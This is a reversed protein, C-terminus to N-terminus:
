RYQQQERQTCQTANREKVRNEDTRAAPTPATRVAMRSTRREGCETTPSNTACRLPLAAAVVGRLWSCALLPLWSCCWAWASLLTAVLLSASGSSTATTTGVPRTSSASQSWLLLAAACAPQVLEQMVLVRPLSLPLSLLLVVWVLM